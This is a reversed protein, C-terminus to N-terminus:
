FDPASNMLSVAKGPGAYADIASSWMLLLGHGEGYWLGRVVYTFSYTACAGPIGPIGEGGAAEFSVTLSGLM